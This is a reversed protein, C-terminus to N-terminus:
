PAVTFIAGWYAPVSAALNGTDTQSAPAGSTQFYNVVLSQTGAAIAGKSFGATDTLAGGANPYGFASFAMENSMQPAGSGTTTLSSTATNVYHGAKKDAFYSNVSAAGTVYFVCVETGLAGSFSWSNTSGNGSGLYYSNLVHGGGATANILTAGAPVTPSSTGTLVFAFISTGTPPAAAFAATATGTSPATATTFSPPGITPVPTPTPTPSPTPTTLQLLANANSRFNLQGGSNTSRIANAWTYYSDNSTQLYYAFSSKQSDEYSILRLNPYKTSPQTIEQLMQTLWQAKRAGGDGWETTGIESISIPHSSTIAAALKYSALAVQDFTYWPKGTAQNGRNYTDFSLWDVYADGPYANTPDDWPNTKAFGLQGSNFCWVFKVNNAGRERFINVVHQWAAIFNADATSDAGQNPLGWSWGPSNFEHFPRLFIPGGYNRLENASNKLYTDWTGAIIDTLNINTPEWTLEPIIGLAQWQSLGRKNIFYALDYHWTVYEIGVAITRRYVQSYNPCPVKGTDGCVEGLFVGATSPNTDTLIPLSSPSITPVPTPTTGSLRLAAPAQQRDTSGPLTNVGNHSSSCASAFIAAAVFLALTLKSFSARM